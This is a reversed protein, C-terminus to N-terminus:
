VERGERIMQRYEKLWNKYSKVLIGLGRSEIERDVVGGKHPHRHKKSKSSSFGHAYHALEHALSYLVVEEPVERSKFMSSVTIVTVGKVFISKQQYKISAFRFKAYRGFTVMVINSKELDPFYRAWLHELRTKLWLNDRDM